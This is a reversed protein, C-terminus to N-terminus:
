HGALREPLTARIEQALRRAAREWSADTNGRMDVSRVLLLRGTEVAKVGANVNLILNSVKQVWGVLV